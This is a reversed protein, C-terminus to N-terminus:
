ENSGDFIVRFGVVATAGATAQTTDVIVSVNVGGPFDIPFIIGPRGSDVAVYGCPVTEFINEGDVSITFWSKNLDAVTGIGYAFPMIGIVKGKQAPVTYKTTTDKVGANYSAFFEQEKTTTKNWPNIRKFLNEKTASDNQFFCLFWAGAIAAGQSNNVVFQLSQGEGVDVRTIEYSNPLARRVYNNIYQEEKVKYGGISFTVLCFATNAAVDNVNLVDIAICRGRNTPLVNAINAIAAIAVALLQGNGQADGNYGRCLLPLKSM